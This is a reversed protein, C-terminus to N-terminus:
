SPSTAMHAGFKGALPWDSGINPCRHAPVDERRGQGVAGQPDGRRQGGRVVARGQSARVGPLRAVEDPNSYFIEAPPVGLGLLIDLEAISAIEFGAGEQILVKLVRPDPNAKV